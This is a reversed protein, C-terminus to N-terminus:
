NYRFFAGLIHASDMTVHLIYEGGMPQPQVRRGDIQAHDFSAPQTGGNNHFVTTASIHVTLQTGSPYQYTAGTWVGTTDCRFTNPPTLGNDAIITTYGTSCHAGGGELSFAVTRTAPAVPPHAVPAAAVPAAVVPAHPAPPAVPAAPHPTPAPAAPGGAVNNQCRSVITAGPVSHCWAISACLPTTNGKPGRCIGGNPDRPYKVNVQAHAGLFADAALADDAPTNSSSDEAASSDNAPIGGMSVTRKQKQTQGCALFAIPFLAIALTTVARNSTLSKM